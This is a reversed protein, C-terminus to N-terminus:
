SFSPSTRRSDFYQVGRFYSTLLHPKLSLFFSLFPVLPAKVKKQSFIKKSLKKRFLFFCPLDNPFFFNCLPFLFVKTRDIKSKRISRSLQVFSLLSTLSFVFISLCGYMRCVGYNSARKSRNKRHSKDGEGGETPSSEGRASVKGNGRAGGRASGKITATKKDEAEVGPTVKESQNITYKPLSPLYSITLSSFSFLFLSLFSGCGRLTEQQLKQFLNLPVKGKAERGKQGEKLEKAKTAGELRVKILNARNLFHCSVIFCFFIM